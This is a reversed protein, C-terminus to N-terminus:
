AALRLVLERIIEWSAEDDETAIFVEHTVEITVAEKTVLLGIRRAIPCGWYCRPKGKQIDSRTVNVRVRM